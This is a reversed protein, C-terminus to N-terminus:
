DADLAAWLVTSGTPEDVGVASEATVWIRNFVTIPEEPWLTIFGWGGEDASFQGVTIKRGDRRLWVSYVQDEPLRELGKAVLLGSGEQGAINLVGQTKPAAGRGQQMVVQKDSAAMLYNMPRQELLVNVLRADEEALQSLRASLRTNEEKLDDILRTNEKKIDDIENSTRVGIAVGAALLLIAMAAAVGLAWRGLASAPTGVGPGRRHRGAEKLTSSKLVHPPQSPESAMALSAAVQVHELYLAPCWPCTALHAEVLAAEDEYLANLAYAPLLEEVQRCDM